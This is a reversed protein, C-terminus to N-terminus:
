KTHRQTIANILMCVDMEFDSRCVQVTAPPLSPSIIIAGASHYHKM